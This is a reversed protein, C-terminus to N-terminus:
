KVIGKEKFYNESGPHLPIGMLSATAKELTIEAAPAYTQVVEDNYEFYTKAIQYAIEEDMDARVGIIGQQVITSIDQEQGDYSGAALVGPSYYPHKTKIKELVQNDVPIFKYDDTTMLETMNPSGLGVFEFMVDIRSDKLAEFRDTRGLSVSKFDDRTMGYGELLADIMQPLVSTTEGDGIVKGKIDEFSNIGSDKRVVIHLPVTVSNFLVRLDEFAGLDKFAGIGNYAEYPERPNLLAMDAQGSQLMKLNDMTGLSTMVTVKANPIHREITTGIAGGYVYWGGGVAATAFNLFLPENSAAKESSQEQSQNEGTSANDTGGCGVVLSSFLFIVLLCAALRLKM